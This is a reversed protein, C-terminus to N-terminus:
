KGMGHVHLIPVRIVLMEPREQMRTISAEVLQNDKINRVMVRGTADAAMKWYGGGRTVVPFEPVHGGAALCNLSASTMARPLEYPALARAREAPSKRALQAAIANNDAHGVDPVIIAACDNSNLVHRTMEETLRDHKVSRSAFRDVNGMSSFVPMPQPDPEPVAPEAIPQDDALLSADVLPPPSPARVSSAAIMQEVPLATPMSDPADAAMRIPEPMSDLEDAAMRIPAPMSDGLSEGPVAPTQQPRAGYANADGGLMLRDTAVRDARNESKQMRGLFQDDAFIGAEVSEGRLSRANESAQQVRSDWRFPARVSAGGRDTVALSYDSRVHFRGTTAGGPRQGLWKRVTDRWQATISGGVRDQYVRAVRERTPRAITQPMKPMRSSIDRALVDMADYANNAELDNKFFDEASAYGLPEYHAPNRVAQSTVAYAALDDGILRFQRQNGGANAKMCLDAMDGAVQRCVSDLARIVKVSDAASPRSASAEALAARRRAEEMRKRELEEQLPDATPLEFDGNPDAQVHLAYAPATRLAILDRQALPRGNLFLRVRTELDRLVPGFTRRVDYLFREWWNRLNPDIRIERARTFHPGTYAKIAFGRLASQAASPVQKVYLKYFQSPTMYRCAGTRQYLAVLAPNYLSCEHHLPM